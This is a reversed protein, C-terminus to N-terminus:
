YLMEMSIQVQPVNWMVYTQTMILFNLVLVSTFVYKIEVRILIEMPRLIILVNLFANDPSITLMALSAHKFVNIPQKKQSIALHVSKYVHHHQLIPSLKHCSQIKANTVVFDQLIIQSVLWPILIVLSFVSEPSIKVMLTSLNHVLKSM